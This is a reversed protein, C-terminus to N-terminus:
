CLRHQLATAAFRACVLQTLDVASAKDLKDMIHQSLRDLMVDSDYHLDGLSQVVGSLQLVMPRLNQELHALHRAQIHQSRSALLLM